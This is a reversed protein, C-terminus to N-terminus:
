ARDLGRQPSASSPSMRPLQAAERDGSARVGADVRMGVDRADVDAAARRGLARGLRQVRRQGLVDGDDRGLFRWGLEVCAERCTRAAVAVPDPAAPRPRRELRSRLQHCGRGSSTARSAACAATAPRRCSKRAKVGVRSAACPRRRSRDLSGAPDLVAVHESNSIVASENRRCMTRVSTPVITSPSRGPAAARRADARAFGTLGRRRM